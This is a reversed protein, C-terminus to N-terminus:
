LSNFRVLDSNNYSVSGLSFTDEIQFVTGDQKKNAFSVKFKEGPLIIKNTIFEVSNRTKENKGKLFNVARNYVTQAQNLNVPENNIQFESLNVTYVESVESNLLTKAETNEVDLITQGNALKDVSPVLPFGQVTKIGSSNNNTIFFTSSVDGGAGTNGVPRVHTLTEGSGTQKLNKIFILNQNIKQYELLNTAKLNPNIPRSQSNGVEIFVKEGSPTQKIGLDRWSYNGLKNVGEILLDYVSGISPYYTEQNSESIFNIEVNNNLGNFFDKTQGSFTFGIPYNRNYVRTNSLLSVTSTFNISYQGDPLLTDKSGQPQKIFALSLGDDQDIRIGAFPNSIFFDYISGLNSNITMKLQHPAKTDLQLIFNTVGRSDLPIFKDKALSVYPNQITHLQIM